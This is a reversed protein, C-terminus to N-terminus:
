TNLANRHGGDAKQLSARHGFFCLSAHIPIITCMAPPLFFLFPKTYRLSIWEHKGPWRGRRRLLKTGIRYAYLSDCHAQASALRCVQRDKDPLASWMKGIERMVFIGRKEGAPIVGFDHTKRVHQAYKTYGSTVEKLGSTFIRKKGLLVRAQNIQRREEM